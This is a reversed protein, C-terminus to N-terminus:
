GGTQTDDATADVLAALTVRYYSASTHGGDARAYNFTAREGGIARLAARLDEVGVHEGFERDIFRRLHDASVHVADDDHWPERAQLVEDAREVSSREQYRAVWKRARGALTADPDEEVDTCKTIIGAVIQRWDNNGVRTVQLGLGILLTKSFEAQYFLSDAAGLVLRQGDALELAFRATRPDRGYQVFRALDPLGTVDAVDRLAQRRPDTETTM